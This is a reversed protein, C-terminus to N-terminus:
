YKHFHPKLLISRYNICVRYIELVAKNYTMAMSVCGYHCNKYIYLVNSLLLTYKSSRNNEQM